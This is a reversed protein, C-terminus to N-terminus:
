RLIIKIGEPAQVTSVINGDDRKIHKVYIVGAPTPYTGEAWELDGLHFKYMDIVIPKQSLDSLISQGYM